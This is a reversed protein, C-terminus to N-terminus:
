LGKYKLWAFMESFVASRVPEASLILDHMGGPFPKLTVDSGLTMSYRAIDVVDLVTDTRLASEDFAKPRSSAASLMSLIPCSVNLGAPNATAGTRHGQDMGRAGSFRQDAEMGFSLEM